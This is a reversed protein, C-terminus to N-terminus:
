RFFCLFCIWIRWLRLRGISPIHKMLLFVFCKYQRPILSDSFVSFLLLCKLQANVLLLSSFHYLIQRGLCSVYSVHTLDKLPSSGQLLAHGDTEMSWATDHESLRTWSQLAHVTAWWAGRDVSNELCSYQLPNGNEEGPFRGLGLISGADGADRADGIGGYDRGSGIIQCRTPTMWESCEGPRVPM